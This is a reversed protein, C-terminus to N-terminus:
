SSPIVNSASLSKFTLAILPPRASAHFRTCVPLGIPIILTVKLQIKQQPSSQSIDFIALFYNEDLYQLAINQLDETTLADIIDLYNYLRYPDRNNRDTNSLYSLWYSNQEIDNFEADVKPDFNNIMQITVIKNKDKLIKTKVFLELDSFGYAGLNVRKVPLALEVQLEIWINKRVWKCGHKVDDSELTVDDDKREEHYIGFNIKVSVSPNISSADICFSLGATVALSKFRPSSTQM